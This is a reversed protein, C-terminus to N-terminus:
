QGSLNSIPPQISSTCSFEGQHIAAAANYLAAAEKPSDAMGLYVIKDNIRIQAEWKRNKSTVGKYGTRNKTIVNFSNQRFTAERLNCWRNDAPNHNIHDVICTPWRGIMYLFALRHAYYRKGLLKVLIYGGRIQCGTPKGVNSSSSTKTLRIFIGSSPDYFLHKKIEEQTLSNKM